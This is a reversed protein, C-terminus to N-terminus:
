WNFDSSKPTFLHIIFNSHDSVAHDSVAHPPPVPPTEPPVPKAQCSLSPWINSIRPDSWEGYERSEMCGYRGWYAWRYHRQHLEWRHVTRPRWIFFVDVSCGIFTYNPSFMVWYVRLPQMLANFSHRGKKAVHLLVHIGACCKICWTIITYM